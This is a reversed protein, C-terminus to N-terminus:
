TIRNCPKQGSFNSFARNGKPNRRLVINKYLFLRILNIIKLKLNFYNEGVYIWDHM